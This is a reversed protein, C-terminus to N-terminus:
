FSAVAWRMYFPFFRLLLLAAGTYLAISASSSGLAIACFNNPLVHIHLNRLWLKPQLVRRCILVDAKRLGYGQTELM